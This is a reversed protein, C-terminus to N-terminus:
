QWSKSIKIAFNRFRCVRTVQGFGKIKFAYKISATWKMLSFGSNIEQSDSSWGRLHYVFIPLLVSERKKLNFNMEESIFIFFYFFKRSPRGISAFNLLGYITSIMSIWWHIRSRWFKSFFVIYKKMILVSGALIEKEPCICIQLIKTWFNGWLIIM